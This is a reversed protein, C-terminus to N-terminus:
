DDGEDCAGDVVEVEDEAESDVGPVINLVLCTFLTEVM